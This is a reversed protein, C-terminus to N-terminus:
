QWLLQGLCEPSGAVGRVETGVEGGEGGLGGVGGAGRCAELRQKHQTNNHNATSTSTQRTKIKKIKIKKALLAVCCLFLNCKQCKFVTSFHHLTPPTPYHAIQVSPSCPSCSYCRCMILHLKHNAKRQSYAHLDIETYM